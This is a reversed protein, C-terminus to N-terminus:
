YTPCAANHVLVPTKGVFYNHNDEISLNYTTITKEEVWCEISFIEIFQGNVSLVKDDETLTPLGEYNTLSKWGEETYIPHYENMEINTGDKFNVRAINTTYPNEILAIVSRNEYEKTLENYSIVVDGVVIDEINKTTGDALWVQTGKVFCCGTAIIKLNIDSKVDSIKLKFTNYDGNNIPIIEADGSM